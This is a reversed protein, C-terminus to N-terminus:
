TKMKKSYWFRLDWPEEPVLGRCEELAVDFPCYDFARLHSNPNCNFVEFGFREMVPRLQILWQNVVVFQGNNSDCASRDRAEGFSYNEYMGRKPDMHFDVGLLFIRKAGLYQLLRLGLLMTCVTKPQGTRKVGANHNGWAAEKDYFWTEDPMLWSRRGYGWVNPCDCTKPDLYRFSGDPLKERISARNGRLKPTPLFKMMKPDLFIGSHFKMPPDSCTFASVPAYGAVNNVGMSFIGREALRTYELEKLSPGGCVLFAAGGSLMNRLVTTDHGNRDTIRLPDIFREGIKPDDRTTYDMCDQCNCIRGAPELTCQEHLMCGYATKSVRRPQRDLVKGLYVCPPKGNPSPPTGKVCANYAERDTM